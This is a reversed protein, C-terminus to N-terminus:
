ALASGTKFWSRSPDTAYHDQGNAITNAEDSSV